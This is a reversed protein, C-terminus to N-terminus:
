RHRNQQVALTAASIRVLPVLLIAILMVLFRPIHPTDTLWALIGFLTLVVATWSLAGTVLTRDSVTRARTLRGAVWAAVGMKLAVVVGLILPTMSWLTAIRDTDDLTWIALPGLISALVISAFLSGKILREDGTLGIYLNQM